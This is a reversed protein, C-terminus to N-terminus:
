PKRVMGRVRRQLLEEGAPADFREVDNVYEGRTAM